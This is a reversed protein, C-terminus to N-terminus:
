VDSQEAECTAELLAMLRSEVSDWHPYLTKLQELYSRFRGLAEDGDFVLEYVPRKGKGGAKSDPEAAEIEIHAVMAAAREEMEGVDWGTGELHQPTQDLDRLIDVLLAENYAARDATRNDSL